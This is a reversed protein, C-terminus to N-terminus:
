CENQYIIMVNSDNIWKRLFDFVELTREKARIDSPRVPNGLDRFKEQGNIFDENDIECYLRSSSFRRTFDTQHGMWLSQIDWASNIYGCVQYEDLINCNNDQCLGEAYLLCTDCSNDPLPAVKEYKGPEYELNICHKKSDHLIVKPLVYWVLDLGM